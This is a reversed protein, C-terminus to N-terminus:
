PTQPKCGAVRKDVLDEPAYSKAIGAVVTRKEAEGADVTLKLLKDAGEAREAELIHGVKLEVKM